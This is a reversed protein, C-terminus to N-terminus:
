STGISSLLVICYFNNPFVNNMYGLTYKAKMNIKSNSHVNGAKVPVKDRASNICLQTIEIM